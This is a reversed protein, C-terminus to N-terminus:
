VKAESPAAIDPEEESLWPDSQLHPYKAVLEKALELHADAEGDRLLRRLNLVRTRLAVL